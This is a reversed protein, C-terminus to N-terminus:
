LEGKFAKDLISPLMADLEKSTEEQLCKLANKKEEITNFQAIIKNQEIIPPVVIKVQNLNKDNIAPYHGGTTRELCQNVFYDSCVQYLLFDPEVTPGCRLVAFGTSCIQNDLAEGIKAFSRLNPRVTSIIIDNNRIVRRARSPADTSPLKKGSNLLSPGKSVSSIDIYIFDDSTERPDRSEPNLMIDTDQLCVAFRAIEKRAFIDEAIRNNLANSEEVARKRLGRAEEIKAALSEIRAVIRHQEELPPLPIKISLFLEPKIRNKGSTGRSKEDCAEWFWKTKTIWHFWQPNLVSRIPSFTPFEGSGFCGALEKSVVAVSGNRAWIKNVIIDGSEVQSLSAYKTEIGDISEREYAGQGWLRVGIQRYTKGAVPTEAREVPVAAKRLEVLSFQNSM